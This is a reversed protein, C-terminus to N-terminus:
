QKHEPPKREPKCAARPYKQGSSITCCFTCAEVKNHISHPPGLLVEEIQTETYSHETPPLLATLFRTFRCCFPLFFFFVVGIGPTKISHLIHISSSHFSECIRFLHKIWLLVYFIFWINLTFYKVMEQLINEDQIQHCCCTLLTPVAVVFSKFLLHFRFQVAPAVVQTLPCCILLMITYLILVMTLCLRESTFIYVITPLDNSFLRGWSFITLPKSYGIMQLVYHWWFMWLIQLCRKSPVSSFFWHGHHKLPAASHYPAGPESGTHLKHTRGIYAHIREPYEWWGFVHM